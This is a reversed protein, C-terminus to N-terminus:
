ECLIEDATPDHGPEPFPPPPADGGSFLHGRLYVPDSLDVTGSDNGDAADLCPPAGLGLFLYGLISVADSLDINGDSNAEGRVFPVGELREGGYLIWVFSKRDEAGGIALDRKGDGDFDGGAMIGNRGSSFRMGETGTIKF